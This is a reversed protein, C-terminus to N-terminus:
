GTRAPVIEAPTWKAIRRAIREAPNETEYNMTEAQRAFPAQDDLVNVNVIGYTKGGAEIVAGVYVGCSRCLLTDATKSGFRYRHIAKADDAIFQVTGHPDSTTRVAHKRCFSCDCARLQLQRPDSPTEFRVAIAGCHCRGVLRHNTM